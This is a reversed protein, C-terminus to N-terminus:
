LVEAYTMEMCHAVSFALVSSSSKIVVRVGEWCDLCKPAERWRRYMGNRGQSSIDESIIEIHILTWLLFRM